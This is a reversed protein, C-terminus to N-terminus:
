KKDEAVLAARVGTVLNKISGLSKRIRASAAKTKKQEYATIQEIATTLQQKINSLEDM